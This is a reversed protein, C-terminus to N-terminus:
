RYSGMTPKGASSMHSAELPPPLDGYSWVILAAAALGLWIGTGRWNLVFGLTYSIPMGVAWYGFLALFLAAISVGGGSALAYVILINSPPIILGTTSSTINVAAAYDSDYGEKKMLPTM